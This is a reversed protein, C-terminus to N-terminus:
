DDDPKLRIKREIPFMDFNANPPLWSKFVVLYCNDSYEVFEIPSKGEKLIYRYIDRVSSKDILKNVHGCLKLFHRNDQM